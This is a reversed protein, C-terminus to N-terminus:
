LFEKYSEMQQQAAILAENETPAPIYLGCNASSYNRFREIATTMEASDLDTTSRMYTVEIGRRNKHTKQFIDSNVEKKFLEYKVEELSFGFESAFYGLCVHLYSNQALSRQNKKKKVEVLALPANICEVYVKNCYEKFQQREYPNHLNFIM